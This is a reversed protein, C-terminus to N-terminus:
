NILFKKLFKKAPKNSMALSNKVSYAEAGISSLLIAKKKSDERNQKSQSVAYNKALLM